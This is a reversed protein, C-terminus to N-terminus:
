LVEVELGVGDGGCVDVDALMGATRGIGCPIGEEVLVRRQSDRLFNRIWILRCVCWPRLFYPIQTPPNLAAHALRNIIPAIFARLSAQDNTAPDILYDSFIVYVPVPTPPLQPTAAPLTILILDFRIRRYHFGHSFTPLHSGFAKRSSQFPPLLSVFYQLLPVTPLAFSLQCDDTLLSLIQYLLIRLSQNSLPSSKFSSVTHQAPHAVCLLLQSQVKLDVITSSVDAQRMASSGQLM